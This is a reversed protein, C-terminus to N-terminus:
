PRRRRLSWDSALLALSALLWGFLYALITFALFSAANFSIADTLAAVATSSLTHLGNQTYVTRRTFRETRLGNQAAVRRKCFLGLLELLLAVHVEALPLHLLRQHRVLLGQLHGERTPSGSPVGSGPSTADSQNRSRSCMGARSDAVSGHAHKSKVCLLLTAFHSTYGVM